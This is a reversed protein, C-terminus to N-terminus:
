RIPNRLTWAEKALAIAGLVGSRNGLAPPVIYSDIEDLISASPIYGSIFDRTRKRVQRLLHLNSGVGGGLLIRQPSLTYIYTTLALSIYEAELQWAPHDEPLTEARRGWRKEMAPGCALGEFCDGHFPCTGPFPDRSLDHPLPIHGMEPHLYGHLLKGEAFAGGGIGTGVTLYMFTDLGQGTGWRHEGLASANVDNDIGIPLDFAERLMGLLNAGSWGPKPTSLIRGYTSSDIRLDLPGFSAIGIGALGGITKEQERFFEITRTLTEEPSTTTFRAEGRLDDPGSGVACVFKTGGGEIGGFLPTDHIM